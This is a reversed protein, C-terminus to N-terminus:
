LTLETTSPYPQFRFPLKLSRVGELIGPTLITQLEWLRLSRHLSQEVMSHYLWVRYHYSLFALINYLQSLLYEQATRM